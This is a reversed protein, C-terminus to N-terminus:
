VCEGFESFCRCSFHVDEDWTHVTRGFTLHAIHAWFLLFNSPCSRFFGTSGSILVSYQLFPFCKELPMYMISIREKRRSSKVATIKVIWSLWYLRGKLYGINWIEADLSFCLRLLWRQLSSLRFSSLIASYSCIDTRWSSKLIYKQLSTDFDPILMRATAIVCSYQREPWCSVQQGLKTWTKICVFMALSRHVFIEYTADDRWASISILNGNDGLLCFPPCSTFNYLFLSM